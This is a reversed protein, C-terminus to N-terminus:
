SPVGMLRLARRGTLGYRHLVSRLKDLGPTSEGDEWKRLERPKLAVHKATADCAAREPSIFGARQRALRLRHQFTSAM